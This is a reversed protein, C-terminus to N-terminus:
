RVLSLEQHSGLLPKGGNRFRVNRGSVNRCLCKMVLVNRCMCTKARYTNRCMSIKDWHVNQYLSNEACPSKLAIIKRCWPRKPMPVNQCLLVPAFIDTGFHEPSSIDRALIDMTSFIGQALIDGHPFTRTDLHGHLCFTWTGTRRCPWFM